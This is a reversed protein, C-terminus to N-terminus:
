LKTLTFCIPCVGSCQNFYIFFFDWEYQFGCSILCKPIHKFLVNDFRFYMGKLIFMGKIPYHGKYNGVDGLHILGETIAQLFSFILAM